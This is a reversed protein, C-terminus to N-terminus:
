LIPCAKWRAASKKIRPWDKSLWARIAEKDGEQAEPQPLQTSFDLQHLLPGVSHFHYRVHFIEEILLRVRLLTWRETPFGAARAGAKLLRKLEKQQPESLKRPRGTSTRRRLGRKGKEELAKAWNCVAVRGVGLRRGIEAQSLRKRRLMKVAALRREEMQERTLRQPKWQM